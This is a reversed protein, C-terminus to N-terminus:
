RDIWKEAVLTEIGAMGTGDAKGGQEPKCQIVNFNPETMSDECGLLFERGGDKNKSNRVITVDDALAFLVPIHEDVCTLDGFSFPPTKEKKHKNKHAKGAAAIGALALHSFLKM